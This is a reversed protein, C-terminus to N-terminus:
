EGKIMFWNPIRDDTVHFFNLGKSVRFEDVAQMVGYKVHLTRKFYDHGAFIGGNRLKPFWARLDRLVGPYTHDADVYIFDLTRERISESVRVSEGRAIIIRPRKTKEAYKRLKEFMTDCEAQSVQLSGGSSLYRADWADVAIAVKVSPSKVLQKFHTGRWVGIEAIARVDLPEFLLPIQSRVKVARILEQKNM